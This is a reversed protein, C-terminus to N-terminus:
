LIVREDGMRRTVRERDLYELLPIAYKRTIGTLDKFGPVSIREGKSKKYTLLQEKLHALAAHHFILEPSVRMLNKERLLIHLLKEARKAEVALGSLVEKVSPVTLGAARFAGEINDKAQQEDAQLTIGTGARKVTEGQLELKKEVALQTLAARFVEAKVRRGLGARLEERAIGPLLPNERQFRTVNELLRASVDEFVGGGVLLPHDEGVIRVVGRSSLNKLSERVESERWGTHLGIEEDRLGMPARAVM